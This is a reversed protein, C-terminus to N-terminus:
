RLRDIPWREGALHRARDAPDCYRINSRSIFEARPPWDLAAYTSTPFLARFPGEESNDLVFM